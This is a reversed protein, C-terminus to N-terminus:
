TGFPTWLLWQARTLLPDGGRTPRMEAWDDHKADHALSTAM